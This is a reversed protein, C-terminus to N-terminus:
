ENKGGDCGSLCTSGAQCWVRYRRTNHMQTDCEDAISGRADDAQSRFVGNGTAGSGVYYDDLIMGDTLRESRRHVRDRRRRRHSVVDDSDAGEGGDVQKRFRIARAQGISHKQQVRLMRQHRDEMSTSTDDRTPGAPPAPEFAGKKPGAQAGLPAAFMSPVLAARSIVEPMMPAHSARGVSGPGSKL